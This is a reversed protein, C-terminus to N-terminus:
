YALHGLCTAPTNSDSNTGDPCTTNSWTVDKLSASDLVAGTLDAGTLNAGDLKAGTLNVSRLDAGILSAGSLSTSAPSPNSAWAFVTIGTATVVASLLLRRLVTTFQGLLRRYQATQLVADVDRVSSEWDAKAAALEEKAAAKSSKDAALVKDEAKAYASWSRSRAQKLTAPDSNGIQSKNERFYYIEPYKRNLRRRYWWWNMPWDETAEWNKILDDITVEVPLLIQVARWMIYSIGALAVAAGLVALPLRLCAESRATCLPLSGIKSLQSGAILAAGVAASAGILWKGADRIRDNPATAEAKSEDVM